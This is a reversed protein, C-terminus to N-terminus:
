LVIPDTYHKYFKGNILRYKFDFRIINMNHADLYNKLITEPGFNQVQIWTEIDQYLNMYVKMSQINGLAMQDNVGGWDYGNPIYVVDAEEQVPGVIDLVSDSYADLRMSIVLDYKTNTTNSYLEMEQYVRMRHIHMCMMNHFNTMHYKNCEYHKYQDYNIEDNCIGKPKYLSCFHELQTDSCITSIFFDVENTQVINSMINTYHEDFRDIRGSFLIALKTM